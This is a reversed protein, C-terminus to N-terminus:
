EGGPIYSHSLFPVFPYRDHHKFHKGLCTKALVNLESRPTDNGASFLSETVAEKNNCQFHLLQLLSDGEKGLRNPYLLSKPKGKATEPIRRVWAAKLKTQIQRNSPKANLDIICFFWIDDAGKHGWVSPGSKLFSNLTEGSESTEYFEKLQIIQVVKFPSLM